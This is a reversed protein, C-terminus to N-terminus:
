ATFRSGSKVYKDANIVLKGSPLQSIELWNLGKPAPGAVVNGQQDFKSGHCPCAYGKDTKAVICGLHTCILSVAYFGKDDRVIRVSKETNIKDTGVPLDDAKGIKFINSVSPLLAPMPFKGLGIFTLVWATIFSWLAAIGLFDRRTMEKEPTIKLDCKPGEKNESSM